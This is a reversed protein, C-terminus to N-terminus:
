TIEKKGFLFGLILTILPTTAQWLELPEVGEIKFVIGYINLCLLLLVVLGSINSPSHAKDGFIKGLFGSDLDVKEKKIATVDKEKGEEKSINM